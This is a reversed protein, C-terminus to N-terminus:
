ERSPRRGAGSVRRPGRDGTKVDQGDKFVIKQVVGQVQAALNAGQVTNFSGVSQLTTQWPTSAATVTSVTQPPAKLNALYAAIMRSKFAQFGFLGGLIVGTLILMIVM